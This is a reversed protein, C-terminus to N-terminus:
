MYIGAVLFANFTIAHTAINKSIIIYPKELLKVSLRFIANLFAFSKPEVALCGWGLEKFFITRLLRCLSFKNPHMCYMCVPLCVTFIFWMHRGPRALM